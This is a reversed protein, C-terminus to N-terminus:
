SRRVTRHFTVPSPQPTWAYRSSSLRRALSVPQSPALDIGSLEPTYREKGLRHAVFCGHISRVVPPCRHHDHTHSPWRMPMTVSHPPSATFCGFSSRSCALTM